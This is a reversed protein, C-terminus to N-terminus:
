SQVTVIAVEYHHSADHGFPAKADAAKRWALCTAQAKALSLPGAVRDFSQPSTRLNVAVCSYRAAVNSVTIPKVPVTAATAAVDAALALAVGVAIAVLRRFM